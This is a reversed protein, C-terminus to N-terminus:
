NCYLNHSYSSNNHRNSNLVQNMIWYTNQQTFTQEYPQTFRNGFYSFSPQYGQNRPGNCRTNCRNNKRYDNSFSIIQRRPEVIEKLKKFSDDIQNGQAGLSLIVMVEAIIVFDLLSLDKIISHRPKSTDIANVENSKFLVPEIM